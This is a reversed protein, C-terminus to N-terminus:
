KGIIRGHLANRDRHRRGASQAGSGSRPVRAVVGALTERAGNRAICIKRHHSTRCLGHRLPPLRGHRSAYDPGRNFRSVARANRGPSTAITISTRLRRVRHVAPEFRRMARRLWRACSNRPTLGACGIAGVQTARGLDSVRLCRFGGVRRAHNTKGVALSRWPHAIRGERSGERARRLRARDPPNRNRGGCSLTV